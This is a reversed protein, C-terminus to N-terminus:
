IRGVVQLRRNKRAEVPGGEDSHFVEKRKKNGRSFAQELKVIEGREKRDKGRRNKDGTNKQRVSKKRDRDKKLLREGV